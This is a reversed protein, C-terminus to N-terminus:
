RDATTSTRWGPPGAPEIRVVDGDREFEWAALAGGGFRGPLCAHHLLDDPHQPRAHRALYAPLAATAFRQRAPGIPLSVMNKTLREDYRIEADCGAALIDVFGHETVIEVRIGPFANVFDPLIHPLVLRAANVPM